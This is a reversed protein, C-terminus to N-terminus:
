RPKLRHFWFLLAAQNRVTGLVDLYMSTLRTGTELREARGVLVSVPTYDELENSPQNAAFLYRVPDLLGQAFKIESTSMLSGLAAAELQLRSGYQRASEGGQQGTVQM